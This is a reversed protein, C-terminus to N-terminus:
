IGDSVNVVDVIEPIEEKLSSAIGESLTFDLAQCEACAGTLKIYVINNEYKIFEINGGDNMLYPRLEDIINIIKEETNM